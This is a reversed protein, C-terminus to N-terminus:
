AESLRLSRRTAESRPKRRVLPLVFWLAALIGATVGAAVGGWQVGLSMGFVVFTSFAISVALALCGGIALKTSTFLMREKDTRDRFGIRHYTAPAM